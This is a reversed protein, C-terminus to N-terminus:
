PRGAGNAATAPQMLGLHWSAEGPEGPGATAPLHDHCSVCRELVPNDYPHSALTIIPAGRAEGVVHCTVCYTPNTSEIQHPVVPTVFARDSTWLGVVLSVFVGVGVAAVAAVLRRVTGGTVRAASAVIGFLVAVPLVLALSRPAVVVVGLGVVVLGVVVGRAPSRARAAAPREAPLVAWLAIYAMPGLIPVAVFALRMWTPSWGRRAALAAAIGAVLRNERSRVLSSEDGRLTIALVVASWALAVIAQSVSLASADFRFALSVTAYTAVAVAASWASTRWGPLGLAAIGGVVVVAVGFAAVAGWHSEHGQVRDLAKGFNTWTLTIMPIAAVALAGLMGPIPRVGSRVVSGLDPHVALLALPPVVYALVTVEPGTSASVVIALSATAALMQLLGAVQREATGLQSVAGVFIVAFLAGFVVEHVRHSISDDFDAFWGIVLLSFPSYLFLFVAFAGAIGRSVTRRVENARPLQAGDAM